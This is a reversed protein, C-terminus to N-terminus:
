SMVKYVFVKLTAVNYACKNPLVLYSIDLIVIALACLIYITISEVLITRIVVFFLVLWNM